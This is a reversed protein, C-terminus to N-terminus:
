EFALGVFVVVWFGLGLFVLVGYRLMCVVYFVALVDFFVYGVVRREFGCSVLGVVFIRLGVWTVWSGAGLSVLYLLGGVVGGCGGVWGSLEM